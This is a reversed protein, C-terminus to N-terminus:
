TLDRNVEEQRQIRLLTWLLDLVAVGVLLLLVPRVVERGPYGYDTLITLLGQTCIGAICLVLRVVARGAATARWNSRATYLGVFIWAVGATGALIITAATEKNPLIALLLLGSLTATILALYRKM